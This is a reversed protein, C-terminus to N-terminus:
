ENKYGRKVVNNRWRETVMGRKQGIKAGTCPRSCTVVCCGSYVGLQVFCGSYVGLPVFCGPHVGLPVDLLQSYNRDSTKAYM